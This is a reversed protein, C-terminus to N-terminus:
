CYPGLAKKIEAPAKKMKPNGCLGDTGYTVLRVEGNQMRVVARAPDSGPYRMPVTAWGDQCVVKTSVIVGTSHDASSVADAIEARSPCATTPPAPAQTPGTATPRAPADAKASEDGSRCATSLCALTAVAVLVAPRFPSM